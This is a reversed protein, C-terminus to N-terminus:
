YYACCQYVMFVDTRTNLLVPFNQKLDILKVFIRLKVNFDHDDDDDDDAWYLGSSSM